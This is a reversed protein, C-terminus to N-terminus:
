RSRADALARYHDRPPWDAKTAYLGSLAILFRVPPRDLGFFEGWVKSRLGQTAIGHASLCELAFPNVRTDYRPEGGSAARLRHKARDKLIAEAMITAHRTAVVYFCCLRRTGCPSRVGEVTGKWEHDGETRDRLAM